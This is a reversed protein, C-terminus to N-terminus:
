FVHPLQSSYPWAVAIACKIATQVWILLPKPTFVMKIIELRTLRQPYFKLTPVESFVTALLHWAFYQSLSTRFDLSNAESQRITMQVPGSEDLNRGWICHQHMTRYQTAFATEPLTPPSGLYRRQFTYGGAIHQCSAECLQWTAGHTRSM